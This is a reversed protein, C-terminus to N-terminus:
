NAPTQPLYSSSQFSLLSFAIPLNPILDNTRAFSAQLPGCGTADLRQLDGAGHPRCARVARRGITHRAQSDVAEDIECHILHSAARVSGVHKEEARSPAPSAARQRDAWPSKPAIVHARADAQVKGDVRLGDRVV